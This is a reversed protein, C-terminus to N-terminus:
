TETFSIRTGERSREIVIPKQDRRRSNCSNATQAWHTPVRLHRQHRTEADAPPDGIPWMLLCTAIKSAKFERLCCNRSIKQSWQAHSLGDFKWYASSVDVQADILHQFNHFLPIWKIVFKWCFVIHSSFFNFASRASTSFILTSFRQVISTDRTSELVSSATNWHTIQRLEIDLMSRAM